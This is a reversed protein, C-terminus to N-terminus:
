VILTATVQYDAGAAVCGLQAASREVLTGRLKIARWSGRLSAARIVKLELTITGSTAVNGCTAFRTTGTGAYHAGRGTLSGSVGAGQVDKWTVSCPGQRCKSKFRWGSQFAGAFSSYGFHSTDRADITYLGEVRAQGLPARPTVVPLPRSLASEGGAVAEVEYRYQAGPLATDDVFRHQDPGVRGVRKGDRVVVFRSVEGPPATWTLTVAFPRTEATLSTPPALAAPESANGDSGGGARPGDGGGGLLLAALGAGVLLLGLGGAVILAKARNSVRHPEGTPGDPPSPLEAGTTGMSTRM